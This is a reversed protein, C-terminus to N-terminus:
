WGLGCWGNGGGSNYGLVLKPSAGQRAPAVNIPVTYTFRGSFLDTQFNLSGSKDGSDPAVTGYTTSQDATTAVAAQLPLLFAFLLVVSYISRCSSNPKM